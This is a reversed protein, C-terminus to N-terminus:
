VLSNLYFHVSLEVLDLIILFTPRESPNRRLMDRLLKSFDM